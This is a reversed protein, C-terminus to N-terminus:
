RYQSGAQLEIVVTVTGDDRHAHHSVGAIADLHDVLVLMDHNGALVTGTLRALGRARAILVLHKMLLTGIGLGHHADDVTVAFEAADDGTGRMWRAVGAAQLRGDELVEAGIAAHLDFDPHTYHHLEADSLARRAAMFRAYVSDPSLRAFGDRLADRDAPTVARIVVDRGDLLQETVHYHTFDQQGADM